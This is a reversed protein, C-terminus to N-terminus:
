KQNNRIETLLQIAEGMAYIIMGSVFVSYMAIVVYIVSVSEYCFFVIIIALAGIAWAFYAMYKLIDAVRNTGIIRNYSIAEVQSGDLKLKSSCNPCILTKEDLKEAEIILTGVGGETHALM